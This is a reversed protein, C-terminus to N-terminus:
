IRRRSLGHSRTRFRMNYLPQLLEFLFFSFVFKGSRFYKTSKNLSVLQLVSKILYILIAIALIGWQQMVIGYGACVLFLFYFIYRSLSEFSFRGCASNKFNAKAVSYSKKIQRWLVFNRLTTEVFSDPLLAVSTNTENVIQNIFVDEGNEINLYSAFGKHEFFLHKRFAVNRYVGTYPKGKIAMSLYQMSLYHNDFRAIRNYFATAKHYYSYGLVVEKDDAMQEVMLRIWDDSVPRGYPEIFLLIDGKAAKIGVTFALKRRGFKKDNSNVPIHTHYLNPYKLKLSQLLEYSEDTSGNNVVIVEFDPYRQELVAPLNEALSDAENEAAIIVSVMPRKYAPKSDDKKIFSLPKSYYNFYFFLQILLFLFLLSLVVIERENLIFYSLIQQSLEQEM